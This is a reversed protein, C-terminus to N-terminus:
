KMKRYGTVLKERNADEITTLPARMEDSCLGLHHLMAKVPIPNVECFLVTNMELMDNHLKRAQTFDGKQMATYLAVKQKPFANACVSIMGKAGLALYLFDLSDEGSYLALKGELINALKVIQDINGSAEKLGVVFPNKSLELVTEPTMNMGTRAPVNYIIVPMQTADTIAKYHAVLGKQTCKNYYPTVVLLGDVGMKKMDISRKVVTKTDNSGTGVIIKARGNIQKTAFEIIADEEEFELTSAESTTGLLVITKVGGAIQHELLKGLADFDVQGNKFPTVLATACGEFLINNM